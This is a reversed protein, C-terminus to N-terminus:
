EKIVTFDHDTFVYNAISSSISNLFDEFTSNINEKKFKEYDKLIEKGNEDHYDFLANMINEPTDEVTVYIDLSYGYDDINDIDFKELEFYEDNQKKSFEEYNSPCEVDDASYYFKAIM